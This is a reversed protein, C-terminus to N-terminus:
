SVTLTIAELVLDGAVTEMNLRSEFDLSKPVQRVQAAIQKLRRVLNSM